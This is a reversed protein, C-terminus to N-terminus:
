QLAKSPHEPQDDPWLAAILRAAGCGGRPDQALLALLGHLRAGTIEVGRCRVRSLLTLEITM